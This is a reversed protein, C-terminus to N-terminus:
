QTHNKKNQKEKRAKERAHNIKPKCRIIKNIIFFSKIFIFDFCKIHLDRNRNIMKKEGRNDLNYFNSLCPLIFFNILMINSLYLYM